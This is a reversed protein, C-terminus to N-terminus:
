WMATARCLSALCSRLNRETELSSDAMVSKLASRSGAEGTPIIAEPFWNVPIEVCQSEDGQPWSTEGCQRCRLYAEGRGCGALAGGAHALEEGAGAIDSGLAEEDDRRGGALGTEGQASRVGAGRVITETARLLRGLPGRGRESDSPVSM